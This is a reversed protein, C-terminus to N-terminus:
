YRARNDDRLFWSLIGSILSILVAAVAAWLLTQLWNAGGFSVTGPVLLNAFWGTILLLIANIIFTFLGLTLCTLPLSLLNIIPGIFTNVIGMVVAVMILATWGGQVSFVDDPLIWVAIAVALVNIILRLLLRM